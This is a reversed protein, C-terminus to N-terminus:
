AGMLMLCHTLPCLQMKFAIKFSSSCWIRFPFDVWFLSHLKLWTFGLEGMCLQIETERILRVKLINNKIIMKTTLGATILMSPMTLIFSLIFCVLLPFSLLILLPPKTIIHPAKEKMTKTGKDRISQVCRRCKSNNHFGNRNRLVMLDVSEPSAFIIKSQVM